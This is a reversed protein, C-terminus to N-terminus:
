RTTKSGDNTLTAHMRLHSSVRERVEETHGLLLHGGSPLAMFESGAINRATYAGFEFPNIGDDRAHVVLTPSTIRELDYRTQPDIAAAENRLGAIRGTVPLFAATLGSVFAQDQFTMQARADASVDFFTDLLSPFLNVIAWFVFDSGFLAQYIWAPIALNQEEATLPTFPATSLLVLATTREPFHRAFQLSPPVGGSMALIAVRDIGLAELLDAFAEAQAVTSADGPLTSRLYGFRSVSIWRYGDSGFMLPLLNGQDYGGGAGHVVLVAPGSGRSSFEVQGHRTEVVDSGEVIRQNIDRMDRSYFYLAVASAAVGGALVIALLTRTSLKATM